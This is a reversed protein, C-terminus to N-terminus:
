DIDVNCDTSTLSIYVRIRRQRSRMRRLALPYRKKDKATSARWAARRETRHHIEWYMRELFGFQDVEQFFEHRRVVKGDYRKPMLDLLTPWLRGLPRSTREQLAQRLNFKQLGQLKLLNWFGPPTSPEWPTTVAARIPVRLEVWKLEPEVSVSLPRIHGLPGL